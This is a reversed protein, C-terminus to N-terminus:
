EIRNLNLENIILGVYNAIEHLRVSRYFENYFLVNNMQAPVRKGSHLTGADEENKLRGVHFIWYKLLQWHFYHGLCSILSQM